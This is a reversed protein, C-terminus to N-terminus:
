RQTRNEVSKGTRTQGSKVRNLPQWLQNQQTSVECAARLTPVLDVVACRALRSVRVPDRIDGPRARCRWDTGSM